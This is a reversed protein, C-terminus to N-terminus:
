HHHHHRTAQYINGKQGLLADLRTMVIEMTQNASTVQEDLENVMRHSCVPVYGISLGFSLSFLQHIFGVSHHDQNRKPHGQGYWGVIM